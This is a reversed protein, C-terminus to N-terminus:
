PRSGGPRLAASLRAFVGIKASDTEPNLFDHGPHGPDFYVPRAEGFGASEGLQEFHSKLSLPVAIIQDSGRTEASYSM